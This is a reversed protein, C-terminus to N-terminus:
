VLMFFRSGWVPFYIFGFLIRLAMDNRQQTLYPSLLSCLVDSLVVAVVFYISVLSELSENKIHRSHLIQEKICKILAIFRILM